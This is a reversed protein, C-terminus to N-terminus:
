IETPSGRRPPTFGKRPCLAILVANAVTMECIGLHAGIRAFSWGDTERLRIAEELRAGNLVLKRGGGRHTTRLGQKFAMVHIARWSRPPLAATVGQVGGVPYHERLADLEDPTWARAKPFPM